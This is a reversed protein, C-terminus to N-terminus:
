ENICLFYIAKGLGKYVRDAYEVLILFFIINWNSIDSRDLFVNLNM